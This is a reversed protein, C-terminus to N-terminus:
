TRKQAVDHEVLQVLFECASTERKDAIGIVRHYKTLGLTCGFAHLFRYGAEDFSFKMQLHVPVLCNHGIHLTHFVKTVGKIYHLAFALERYVWFGFQCYRRNPVVTACSDTGFLHLTRSMYFSLRRDKCFFKLIQISIACLLTFM